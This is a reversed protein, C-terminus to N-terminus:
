DLGIEMIKLYIFKLHGVSPLFMFFKLTRALSGQKLVLAFWQTYYLFFGQLCRQAYHSLSLSLAATLPFSCANLVRM